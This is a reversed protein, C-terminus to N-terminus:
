SPQRRGSRPSGPLSRLCSGGRQASRPTGTRRGPRRLAPRFQGPAPAGAERGDESLAVPASRARGLERGRVVLLLILIPFITILSFTVSSPAAWSVAPP